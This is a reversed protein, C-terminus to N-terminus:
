RKNIKSWRTEQRRTSVRKLSRALSRMLSAKLGKSTFSRRKIVDWIEKVPQKSRKRKSKLMALRNWITSRSLSKNSKLNMMTKRTSTVLSVRVLLSKDIMFRQSQLYRGKRTTTTFLSKVKILSEEKLNSSLRESKSRLQDLQTWILNRPWRRSSWLNGSILTM